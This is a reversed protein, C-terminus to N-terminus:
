RGGNFFFFGVIAGTGVVAIRNSRGLEPDGTRRIFYEYVAVGVGALVAGAIAGRM